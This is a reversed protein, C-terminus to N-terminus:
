RSPSLGHGFGAGMPAQESGRRFAQLRQEPLDDFELREAMLHFRGSQRERVSSQDDLLGQHQDLLVVHVQRVLDGHVGDVRHLAQPQELSSEVRGIGLGQRRARGEVGLHGLDEMGQTVQVRVVQQRRREGPLQGEQREQHLLEVLVIPRTIEHRLHHLARRRGAVEASSHEDGGPVPHRDLSGHVDRRSPVRAAVLGSPVGAADLGQRHARQPDVPVGVLVPYDDTELGGRAACSLEPGGPQDCGVQRRHDGFRGLARERIVGPRRDTHVEVLVLGVTGALQKERGSHGCPCEVAGGVPRCGRVLNLGVEWGGEPCAPDADVAGLVAV